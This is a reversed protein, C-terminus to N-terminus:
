ADIDWKEVIYSRNNSEIYVYVDALARTWQELTPLRNLSLALSPTSYVGNMYRYGQDDLRTLVWVEKM